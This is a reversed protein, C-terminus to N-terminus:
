RNGTILQIPSPGITTANFGNIIGVDIGNAGANGGITLLTSSFSVPIGSKPDIYFQPPIEPGSLIAMGYLKSISAKAFADVGLIGGSFVSGGNLNSNQSVGRYSTFNVYIGGGLITPAGIYVQPGSSGILNFENSRWNYVFGGEAYQGFEIFAGLQYTGGWTVSFASPISNWTWQSINNSISDFGNCFGMYGNQCAMENSQFTLMAENALDHSKEQETTDHCDIGARGCEGDDLMNGTPDNFIVPRNNVYAFRDLAQVGQSQAPILSDPQSFRGLNADYFRSQYFYLGIELEVRQGTYLYDTPMNGNTYRTEGWPKYLQTRTELGDSRYSVTTSGLHDTLLYYVKDGVGNVQVRMAIRVSGSFYYSKWVQGSPPAQLLTQAKRFAKEDHAVKVLSAKVKMGVLSSGPVTGGGFDDGYAASANVFWVGIYGGDDYYPWSSVDRTGLLSGNKYVSVQGNVTARAGFVDGNAFTVSTIDAGQQVWGQASDYTAVIVKHNPADYWVELMGCSYSYNCQSKLILDQEEGSSAVTSFKLYAEQSAGFVNANWYIDGGNGV